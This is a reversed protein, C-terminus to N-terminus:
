RVKKYIKQKKCIPEFLNEVISFNLSEKNGLCLFGNYCLSDYFLQLVQNQLDQNFYIMVNRCLIINMEGFVKDTVLNHNAFAINEKLLRDFIVSDYKEHYYNSFSGKGGSEQYNQASLQIIDTNYIGEEAQDLVKDNFDTAYFQTKKYLNEEKFLIALSYIEQGTAVGASWVKLFSYTDLYPLISKRLEKFFLPDRFMGTVNVSLCYFFNNFIERDSIVASIMETISNFGADEICKKIRRALSAPAYQTFDHGYKVKISDLLLKIEIDEKEM